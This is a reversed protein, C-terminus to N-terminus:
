SNRLLRPRRTGSPLPTATPSMGYEDGLEMKTKFTKAADVAGDAVDMKSQACDIRCSVIKGEGDLVVAAVTADVQATGTKSSGTSLEVGM